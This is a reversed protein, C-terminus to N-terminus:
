VNNYKWSFGGATANINRACASINSKKIGTIKAAENVSYYTNVLIAGKFQYVVQRRSNNLSIKQKSETSHIKGYFSNKIGKSADSLIQRVSESRKIGKKSISMKQKTEESLKVGLTSGAIKAINYGINIDYTKFKDMYFQERELLLNKDDVLEIINFSFNDEGYKNWSNQLHPNSHKNLTLLKLHSNAYTILRRRINVSSGIYMKGNILNKISYIGSNTKLHTVIIM